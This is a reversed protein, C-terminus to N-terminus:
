RWRTTPAPLTAPTPALLIFVGPAPVRRAPGSILCEGQLPEGVDLIEFSREARLGGM